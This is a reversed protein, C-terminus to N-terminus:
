GDARIPRTYIDLQARATMGVGEYLRLAKPNDGSVGLQAEDLGARRAAAFTELLLARGVGRGQQRPHVALIDIYAASEAQRRCTLAFGVIEGGREAVLSLSPDLDHGQLHEEAFATRSMPETGAVAAFAAQDLEHLAAGDARAELMRLTVGPPVSADPLQDLPLRMSWSSRVLGYGRGLLLAKARVNVAPISTRHEKWGLERQRRECWDLLASGFGQGEQEPEVVAFTGFRHAVAYGALVGGSSEAVIADRGLDLESSEWEDLLDGLAGESRGFAATQRDVLLGAVAVADDRKPARLLM